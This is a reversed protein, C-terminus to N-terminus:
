LRFTFSFMTGVWTSNSPILKTGVTASPIFENHSLDAFRETIEDVNIQDGEEVVENMEPAEGPAKAYKKALKQQAKLAERILRKKKEM